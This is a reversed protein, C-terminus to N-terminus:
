GTDHHCVLRMNGPSGADPGFALQTAGAVHSFQPLLGQLYITAPAESREPEPSDAGRSM